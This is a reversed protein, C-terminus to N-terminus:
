LLSKEADTSLKIENNQIEFNSNLKGLDRLCYDIQNKDPNDKLWQLLQRRNRRNYFIADSRLKNIEVKFWEHTNLFRYYTQRSLNYKWLFKKISPEYLFWRRARHIFQVKSFNGDTLKRGGGKKRQRQKKEM